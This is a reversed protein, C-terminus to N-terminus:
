PILMGSFDSTTAAADGGWTEALSGTTTTNGGFRRAKFVFSNSAPVAVTARTTGGRITMATTIATQSSTQRWAPDVSGGGDRKNRSVLSSIKSGNKSRPPM